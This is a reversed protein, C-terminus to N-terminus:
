PAVGLVRATALFGDRLVAPIWVGMVLLVALPVGIFAGALPFPALHPRPPASRFVVKLVHLLMGAFVLVTGVLLVIAGAFAYPRGAFGARAIGFESAFPAFPPAGTIALTGLLLGLAPIPAIEMAGRLRALRLTGYRQGIAGASMFLVTKGVAHNFMHFAAAFLGLPGGIGVALAVIGMHEVSSYALLRKLDHQILVFPVAIAISLAGFGLLLDSSFREGVAGATLLHFRLIAYLACNLLAGSLIVSVPTPAQGHADPLWTHMPALGAKTGFGVLVLAFAFRMLDPDLLAANARLEDWDLAGAADGLAHSAAYYTLLLGFLAFGLGVAGLMLYKWAAELAHGRRVFAVLLATFLTTTETAVWMLGLNNMLPVAVMAGISLQIWLHFWRVQGAAIEGAAVANRLYGIAYLTAAASVLGVILVILGSLADVYVLGFLAHQPASLFADFAVITALACTAVAGGASVLGVFRGAVLCLAATLVPVALLLPALSM